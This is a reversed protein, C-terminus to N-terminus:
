SSYKLILMELAITDKLKGNKIKIDMELAEKYGNYLSLKTFNKSQSILDSIVFSPLKLIKSIDFSSNGKEVLIKTELLIRFQRAVMTLVMLPSEKGLVMSNFQELAIASNKDGINKVLDFIKVELSKTCISNIDKITVEEICYNSLKDIENSINTLSFNTTRLFVLLTENSIKLSKEKFIRETYAFLEKEKLINYEVIKGNKSLYKYLRNRKDVKKEVFLIVIDSLDQIAEMIEDTLNQNGTYFAGSNKIKLFKRNMSFSPTSIFEWIERAEFKEDLVKNDFTSFDSKFALDFEIERKKILFDEEGYILYLNNNDVISM